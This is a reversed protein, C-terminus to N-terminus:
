RENISTSYIQLKASRSDSHRVGAVINECYMRLDYTGTNDTIVPLGTGVSSVMNNVFTNADNGSIKQWDAEFGFTPKCGESYDKSVDLNDLGIFAKSGKKIRM